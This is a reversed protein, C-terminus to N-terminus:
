GSVTEDFWEPHKVEAHRMYADFSEHSLGNILPDFQGLECTHWHAAVQWTWDCDGCRMTTTAAVSGPYPWTM